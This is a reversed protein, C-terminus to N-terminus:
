NINTLTIFPSDIFHIITQEMRCLLTFRFISFRTKAELHTLPVNFMDKFNLKTSM